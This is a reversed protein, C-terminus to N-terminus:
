IARVKPRIICVRKSVNRRLQRKYREWAKITVVRAMKERMIGIMLIKQQMLVQWLMAVRGAVIVVARAMIQM